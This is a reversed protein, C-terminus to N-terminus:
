DAYLPQREDVTIVALGVVVTSAAATIIELSWEDGDLYELKDSNAATKTNFDREEGTADSGLGQLERTTLDTLTQVGVLVSTGGKKLDFTVTGTIDANVSIHRVRGEDPVKFKYAHTLSAAQAILTIGIKSTLRAGASVETNYEALRGTDAPKFAM